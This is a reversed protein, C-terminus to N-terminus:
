EFKITYYYPISEEGKGNVATVAYTMETYIGVNRHMYSFQSSDVTSLLNLNNNEVTYIRYSVVNNDINYPNTAWSILNIYETQLLSKNIQKSVEVGIPPLISFLKSVTTSLDIRPKTVTFNACSSKQSIQVGNDKLKKLIEDVKFRQNYQKLLAWAGTVHPAAMSTGSKVGYSTDDRAVVSKINNGPAILDLMTNSWNGFSYEQDYKSSGDVSVASSICAPNSLGNCASSNGSAIVTAIGVAKLNDIIPKLSNNDCYKSYTEKSGLSMNISAINYKTRLKYVFELGKLQDSDWSMVANESPFYSFVQVAIINADKAVGFLDKGNNGAAIGSVHSGHDYGHADSHEYYHAAAGKGSMESKGNPCDKNASYCQEIITKGKFMEHSTRIGTDLVAIYWNKGTLGYGWATDAGIIEISDNLLPKSLNNTNIVNYKPLRTINDKYVKTIAKISKLKQMTQYNVSLAMYPITEYVYRTSYLSGRLKSLINYASKNIANKLNKEALKIENKLSVSKKLIGTKYKNSNNTLLEINNVKFMIIINMIENNDFNGSLIKDIDSVSNAISFMSFLILILFLFVSKKVNIEKFYYIGVLNM